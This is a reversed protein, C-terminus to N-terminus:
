GIEIFYDLMEKVTMFIDFNPKWGLKHRILSNDCCIFPNDSPRIFSPEVEAKIDLETLSIIYELIKSLAAANGSGVNYVVGCDDSEIVMRYARVIDRVDSFDRKVALNGVRITGGRGSKVIDAAQRCWSPIVFSESQGVGTHNFARVHYIKMGYKSRYIESFQEQMLKSIGYPNNANLTSNENLPKDSEAYEESSGVLLIKPMPECKRAAELINLTGEVNVAVTKQPKKWSLGVSSIAALNVICSPKINLIIEEIGANDLLDADFFRVYEPVSKSNALDSGYITYGNKHFEDALYSGVFGSAGFILVSKNM